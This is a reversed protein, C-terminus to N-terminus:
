ASGERSRCLLLFIGTRADEPPQRHQAHEHSQLPRYTFGIKVQDTGGATAFYIFGKKTGILPPKPEIARRGDVKIPKTMTLESTSKIEAMRQEFYSTM